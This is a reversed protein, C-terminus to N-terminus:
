EDNNGGELVDNVIDEDTELDALSDIFPGMEDAFISDEIDEKMTRAIKKDLYEM